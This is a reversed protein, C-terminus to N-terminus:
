GKRPALGALDVAARRDDAAGNALAPNQNLAGNVLQAALVTQIVQTIQNTTDSAAGGGDNSITVM